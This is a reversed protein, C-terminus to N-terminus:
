EAELSCIVEYVVVKLFDRIFGEVRSLREMVDTATALFTSFEIAYFPTRRWRQRRRRIVSRGRRWSGRALLSFNRLFVEIIFYTFSIIFAILSLWYSLPSPISTSTMPPFFPLIRVVILCLFSSLIWPVIIRLAKILVGGSGPIRVQRLLL